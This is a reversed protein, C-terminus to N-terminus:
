FMKYVFHSMIYLGIFLVSQIPISPKMQNNNPFPPFLSAASLLFFAFLFGNLCTAISNSDLIGQLLIPFLRWHSVYHMTADAAACCGTKWCGFLLFYIFTKMMIIIVAIRFGTCLIFLSHTARYYISSLSCSTWCCRAVEEEEENININLAKEKLFFFFVVVFVRCCSLFSHPLFLLEDYHCRKM